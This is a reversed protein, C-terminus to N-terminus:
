KKRTRERENRASSKNGGELFNKKRLVEAKLEELQERIWHEVLQFSPGWFNEKLQNKEALAMIYSGLVVLYNITAVFNLRKTFPFIAYSVLLLSSCILRRLQNPNQIENSLLLDELFIAMNECDANENGESLYFRLFNRIEQPEEPLFSGQARIFDALLEKGTIVELEPLHRKRNGRNLATIKTRVDASIAGNTVLIARHAQEEIAPYDIPIEILETIEGYIARWTETNISGTKLQFACPTGRDDRAIIDKGHESIGHSSLQLVSFGKIGLVQCYPVQYVKETSNILWNEIVREIM